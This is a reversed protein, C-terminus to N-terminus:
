RSAIVPRPSGYLRHTFLVVEARLYAALGRLSAKSVLVLGRRELARVENPVPGRDRLWVVRGDYRELLARATEVGNGETEPYASVVVSRSQPVIRSM